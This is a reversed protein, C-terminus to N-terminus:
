IGDISSFDIEASSTAQLDQDISDIDDSDSVPATQSAMMRQSQAEDAATDNTSIKSGWIYLAGVILLIVIVVVGIIHSLSKKPAPSVPTPIPNVTIPDM